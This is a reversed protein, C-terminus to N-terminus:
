PVKRNTTEETAYKRNINDKGYLINMPERQEDGGLEEKDEM